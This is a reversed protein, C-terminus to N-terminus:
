VPVLTKGHVYANYDYMRGSDDVVFKAGNKGKVVKGKFKVKKERRQVEVDLPEDALRPYYSFAGTGNVPFAYCKGGNEKANLLCDGAAQQLLDLFRSVVADKRKALGMIHEDSSLGKDQRRITYSNQLQRDTFTCVYTFVDLNRDEPPLSAHSGTRVARGIVQDMRIKNWYPELIHVQRVNRLSLGEAGSQTIMILKVAQGRLNGNFNDELPNRLSQPLAEWNGNFVDLLLSAKERDGPFVIYRNIADGRKLGEPNKFVWKGKVKDIDLQHWGHANLVEGMLGIGEVTRFQTYLLATGPCRNLNKYVRAMKPSFTALEEVLFRHRQALLDKLARELQKKYEGAATRETQNDGSVLRDGEEKVKGKDEDEEFVDLEKRVDMPVPRKIGDPFVFNCAMRSFARYVSNTNNGNGRKKEMRRERHRVDQYFKFQHDSMPIAEEVNKRITPLQAGASRYYSVLGQIRRVFLDPNRVKLMVDDGDDNNNAEEELFLKSFEDRSIPLAQEEFAHPKALPQFGGARLAGQFREVAEESNAVTWEGRRISERTNRKWIYGEPLFSIQASRRNGRVFLGDVISSIGAANAAEHLQQETPLKSANKSFGIEWSRIPGRVLNLLWCLEYPDNIVPTGSLLVMRVGKAANLKKYITQAITSGHVVRSIFNHTEDMIVLSNSFDLKKAAELKIGNYHLITYRHRIVEDITERAEELTPKRDLTDITVFRELDFEKNTMWEGEPLLFDHRKELFGRSLNLAKAVADVSAGKKITIRCWHRNMLGVEATSEIEKKFNPSLSAPLLVFVKRHRAIFGEAAGVAAASKGSGLGHYVLLGRYPSDVSVFKRIFRQHPFLKGRSNSAGQEKSDKFKGYAWPGFGQKNPLQWSSSSPKAMMVVSHTSFDACLRVYLSRNYIIYM